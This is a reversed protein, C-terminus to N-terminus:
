VCLGDPKCKYYRLSQRRRVTFAMVPECVNFWRKYYVWRIAYCRRVLITEKPAIHRRSSASLPPGPSSM